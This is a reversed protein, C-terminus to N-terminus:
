STLFIGDINLEYIISCYEDDNYFTHISFSFRRISSSQFVSLICKYFGFFFPHRFTKSIIVLKCGFFTTSHSIIVNYDRITLRRWRKQIFVDGNVNFCILHKNKMSIKSHSLILVCDMFCAYITSQFFLWKPHPHTM